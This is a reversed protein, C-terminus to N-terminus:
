DLATSSGGGFWDYGYRERLQAVVEDEIESESVDYRTLGTHAWLVNRTVGSFHHVEGRNFEIPIGAWLLEEQWRLHEYIAGGTDYYIMNPRIGHVPRRLRSLRKLTMRSAFTRASAPLRNFKPHSPSWPPGWRAAAFAAVRHSFMFDNPISKQEFSIGDALAKRVPASKFLACPMWPRDMYLITDPPALWDEPVFFPGWLFGAGFAAPHDLMTQMWIVFNPDRLEADSDLLLVREDNLKKFLFDLTAGHSRAPREITDFSVSRSLRKFRARSDATPDCNLLLIPSEACKAASLIARTAVLDTKLNIIVTRSRVPVLQGPDTVIM